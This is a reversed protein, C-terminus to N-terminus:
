FATALGLLLVLVAFALTGALILMEQRHQRVSTAASRTWEVVATSGSPGLKRALDPFTTQTSHRPETV